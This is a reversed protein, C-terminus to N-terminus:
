ESYYYVVDEEGDGEGLNNRMSFTLWEQSASLQQEKEAM